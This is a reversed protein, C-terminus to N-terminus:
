DQPNLLQFLKTEILSCPVLMPKEQVTFTAKSNLITYTAKIAGLPSPMSFNGTTETGEFTANEMKAISVKVHEITEIVNKSIPITFTCM